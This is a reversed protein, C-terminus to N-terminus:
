GEVQVTRLPHRPPDLKRMRVDQYTPIPTEQRQVNFPIRGPTPVLVFQNLIKRDIFWVVSSRYHSCWPKWLLRKWWKRPFMATKPAFRSTIMELDGLPIVM